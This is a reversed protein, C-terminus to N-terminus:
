AELSLGRLTCVETVFSGDGDVVVTYLATAARGRAVRCIEASGLKGTHYITQGTRLLDAPVWLLEHAVLAERRIAAAAIRAVVEKPRREADGSRVRVFSVGYQELADQRAGDHARQSPEDHVAGDVEVALRLAPCYFDIVFPGLIHQRRFRHGM